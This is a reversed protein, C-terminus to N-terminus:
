KGGEFTQLFEARAQAGMAHGERYAKHVEEKGHKLWQSKLNIEHGSSGGAWGAFKAAILDTPTAPMYHEARWDKMDLDKRAVITVRM